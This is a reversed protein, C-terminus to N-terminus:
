RRLVPAQRGDRDFNQTPKIIIDLFIKAPDQQKKPIFGLSVDKPTYVFFKSRRNSYYSYM